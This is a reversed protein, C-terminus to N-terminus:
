PADRHRRRPPSASKSGRGSSAGCCCTGTRPRRTSPRSTSGADGDGVVLDMTSCIPRCRATASTPVDARAQADRPGAVGTRTSPLSLPRRPPQPRREPRARAARAPTGDGRRGRPLAPVLFTCRQVENTQVGPERPPRRFTEEHEALAAAFDQWRGSSRRVRWAPSFWTTSRASCAYRCTGAATTASSVRSRGRTM